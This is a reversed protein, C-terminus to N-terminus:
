WNKSPGKRLSFLVMEKDGTRAKNCTGMYVEPYTAEYKFRSM